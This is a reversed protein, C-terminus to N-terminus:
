AAGTEIFNRLRDVLTHYGPSPQDDPRALPSNILIDIESIKWAIEIGRHNSLSHATAFQHDNRHEGLSARRPVIILPVRHRKAALVSGIGAHAVVLRANRMSTEFRSESMERETILAHRPKDDLTQALVTESLRSALHDMHSILREFPLQTGVTVFIM